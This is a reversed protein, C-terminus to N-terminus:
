VYQLQFVVKWGEDFGWTRLHCFGVSDRGVKRCSTLFDSLHNINRIPPQYKPYTTCYNWGCFPDEGNWHFAFFRNGPLNELFDNSFNPIRILNAAAIYGYL